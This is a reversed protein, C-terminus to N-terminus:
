SRLSAGLVKELRSVIRAHLKAVEKDSLVRDEAQYTLAYALSKKGSPLNAGTYVDFLRAHRLLEGGGKRIEDAVKAAPTAADVVLAMDQLVPPYASVPQQLYRAPIARLLADVDFEGVLVVRRGLDFPGLLKPHLRGFTGLVVTGALVEAAQGPHLHPVTSPRYVVDAVHLAGLLGEIIGKLDFFDMAPPVATSDWHEEGRPGSLVLALRRPEDPFALGPLPEYVTGLEFLRVSRRQRLNRAAVELVSALVSRRLVVRESSIPNALRIYEGPPLELPAEREPTTLSYCVVENLGLDVLLDRLRNEGVLAQNTEQRPLRDAMLTAPLKDYGHIRAIDEILDAPGAQIDLRNPPPTARIATGDTGIAEVKYELSRLIRTAESMPLAIGLQRYLEAAVLTIPKAVYPKPYVEIRRQAVVGGGHQRLLDATRIAAVPVVEPSVGRSFRLSAESPLDFERAMKRVTVPDFTASELLINRTAATVETELGGMVGALAIPGVADAIVLHNENLRREVKDLTVLTEGPRAARVTICPPQGKARAQLVDFDFAHLPQGWELMVFNTIDVVNNIPRMGALSVRHQMMAPAPGITVDRILTVSYRSCLNVDEIAVRVLGDIAPGDAPVPTAPAHLRGGAIAAVEVALGMLGLCRAMNPLIDVELVIDGWYDALPTGPPPAAADLIIIGEHEDAIGLERASCVMGASPIGRIKGPKLEKLVKGAAHGDFLVAGALALVVSQGRDGVKVNDAGTVVTMPAAAGYDLTVLKLRDADPHKTVEQIRAVVIKDKAWVPGPDSQKTKLGDPMPVGVCRVGGVELGALTMREVLEPVSLPCDVYNRLWALPINMTGNATIFSEFSREPRQLAEHLM